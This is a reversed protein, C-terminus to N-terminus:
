KPVIPLLLHSPHPRDHHITNVANQWRRHDNLPEGTNPNVDFRPFNSSSLDVRLRHGKRFVMSTPYLRVTVAYVNGPELLVEQDLSERFRARLIGDTV